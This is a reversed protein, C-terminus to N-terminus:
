TPFYRDVEHGYKGQMQEKFTTYMVYMGKYEHIRNREWHLMPCSCGDCLIEPSLVWNMKILLEDIQIQTM